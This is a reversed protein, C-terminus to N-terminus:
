RHQRSRIQWEKSLRQERTHKIPIGQSSSRRHSPRNISVLAYCTFHLNRLMVPGPCEEIRGLPPLRPRPLLVLPRPLLVLRAHVLRTALSRAAVARVSWWCLHRSYLANLRTVLTFRTSSQVASGVCHGQQYKLNRTRKMEEAPQTSCCESRKM